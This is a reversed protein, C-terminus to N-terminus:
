PGACARVQLELLEADRRLLQAAAVDQLLSAHQAKLAPLESAVAAM